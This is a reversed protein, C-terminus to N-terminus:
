RNRKFGVRGLCQANEFDFTVEGNANPYSVAYIPNKVKSAYFQNRSEADIFDVIRTDMENVFTEGFEARIDEFTICARMEFVIYDWERPPIKGM